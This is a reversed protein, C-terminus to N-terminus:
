DNFVLRTIPERPAAAPPAVDTYTRVMTGAMRDDDILSYREHVLRKGHGLDTFSLMNGPLAPNANDTEIHQAVSNLRSEPNDPVTRFAPKEGSSVMAMVNGTIDRGTEYEVIVNALAGAGGAPGGFITGGVIRSIPRIDDGTVSRYLHGVLPIHQLPNVMDVLDGFGFEQDGGENTVNDEQAAYSLATEFNGNQRSTDTADSLQGAIQQRGSNPREWVPVSGAMRDDDRRMRLVPREARGTAPAAQTFGPNSVTDLM